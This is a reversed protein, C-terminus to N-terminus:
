KIKKTAEIRKSFFSRARRLKELFESERKAGKENKQVKLRKIDRLTKAVKFDIYDFLDSYDGKEFKKEAEVFKEGGYDISNIMHGLIEDQEKGTLHSFNERNKYLEMTLKEVITRLYKKKEKYSEKKEDKDQKGFKGEHYIKESILNLQFHGKKILEIPQGIIREFFELVNEYKQEKLEKLLPSIDMIENKSYLDKRQELYGRIEELTPEKEAKELKPLQEKNM